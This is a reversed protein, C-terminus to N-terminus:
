WRSLSCAKLSEECECQCVVKRIDDLADAYVFITLSLCLVIKIVILISHLHLPLLDSHLVSLFQRITLMTVCMNVVPSM